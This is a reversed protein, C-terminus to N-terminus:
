EKSMVTNVQLLDLVTLSLDPQILLIQSSLLKWHFYPLSSSHSLESLDNVSWMQFHSHINVKWHPIWFNSRWLSSTTVIAHLHNSCPSSNEAQQRLSLIHDQSLLQSCLILLPQGQSIRLLILSLLASRLILKMTMLQSLGLNQQIKLQM